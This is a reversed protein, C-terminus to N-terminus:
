IVVLKLHSDLVSSGTETLAQIHNFRLMLVLVYARFMQERFAVAPRWLQDRHHYINKKQQEDSSNSRNRIPESTTLVISAKSASQDDDMLSSFWDILNFTPFRDSFACFFLPSTGSIKVRKVTKTSNNTVHVNVSIPEGHYYLQVCLM